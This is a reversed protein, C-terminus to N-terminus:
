TRAHRIPKACAQNSGSPQGLACWWQRVRGVDIHVFGPDPYHGVGGGNMALAANRLSSTAVGDVAIDIAMGQM